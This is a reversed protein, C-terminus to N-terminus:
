IELLDKVCDVIAILSITKIGRKFSNLTQSETLSFPVTHWRKAGLVCADGAGYGTTRSKPALINRGNHLNYPTDKEEFITNM